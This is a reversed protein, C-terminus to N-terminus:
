WTKKMRPCARDRTAVVTSMSAHLDRREGGDEASQTAGLEQGTARPGADDSWSTPTEHTTSPDTPKPPRSLKNPVASTKADETLQASNETRTWGSM